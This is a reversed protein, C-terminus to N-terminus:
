LHSGGVMHRCRGARVGHMVPQTTVGTGAKSM